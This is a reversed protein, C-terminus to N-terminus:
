NKTTSQETAYRRHNQQEPVAFRAHYQQSYAGHNTRDGHTSNVGSRNVTPRYEPYQQHDNSPNQAQIQQSYDQQRIDDRPLPTM